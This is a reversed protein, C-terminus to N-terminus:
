EGFDVFPVASVYRRLNPLSRVLRDLRMDSRLDLSQLGSYGSLVRVLEPELESTFKVDLSRVREAPLKKLARMVEHGLDRNDYRRVTVDRPQYSQVNAATSIAAAILTDTRQEIILVGLFGILAVM